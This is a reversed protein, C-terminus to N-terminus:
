SVTFPTIMGEKAHAHGMETDVINCLLTYDGAALKFTGACEKGAEFPEIEGVIEAGDPLAKEDLGDDGITLDGPKAGKVIVLEHKEKGDNTAHFEINGSAVTSEDLSISWEKLTAHVETDRDNTTGDEIKCDGNLKESSGSASASASVSGGDDSSCATVLMAIAVLALLLLRKTM